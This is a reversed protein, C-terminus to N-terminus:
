GALKKVYKIHFEKILKVMANIEDRPPLITTRFHLTGPLQGFGSGPVVCIGTEELLAMCYESDLKSEYSKREEATMKTVDKARPLNLKVFAYMAGQPIDVDMGDIKSLENGLIEAKTKLENL